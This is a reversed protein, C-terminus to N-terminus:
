ALIEQDEYLEELLPIILEVIKDDKEDGKMMDLMAKMCLCVYLKASIKNTLPTTISKAM